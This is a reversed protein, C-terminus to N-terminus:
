YIYKKTSLQYVEYTNYLYKCENNKKAVNIATKAYKYLGDIERTGDPYRVFVVFDKMNM